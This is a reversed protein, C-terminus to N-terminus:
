PLSEEVATKEATGRLPQKGQIRSRLHNKSHQTINWGPQGIYDIGGNQLITLIEIAALDDRYEKRFYQSM